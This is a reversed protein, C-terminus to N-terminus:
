PTHKITPLTHCIWVCECKVEIIFYSFFANSLPEFKIDNSDDVKKKMLDFSILQKGIQDMEIEIVSKCDIM